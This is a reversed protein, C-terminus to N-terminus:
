RIKKKIPAPKEPTSESRAPTTEEEAPTATARRGGQERHRQLSSRQAATLVAECDRLAKAQIEYIHERQAATLPPEIKSFYDPVRVGPPAAVHAPEASKDANKSTQTAKTRGSPEQAGSPLAVLGAVLVLGGCLAVARRM